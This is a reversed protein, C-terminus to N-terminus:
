EILYPSVSSLEQFATINSTHNLKQKSTYILNLADIALQKGTINAQYKYIFSALETLYHFDFYQAESTSM